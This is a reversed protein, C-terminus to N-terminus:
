LAALIVRVAEGQNARAKEALATMEADLASGAEELLKKSAEHAAALKGEADHRAKDEAENQIQVAENEADGVIQAAKQSAERISEEANVEATRVAEIADLAM